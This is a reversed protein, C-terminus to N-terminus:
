HLLLPLHALLRQTLMDASSTADVKGDVALALTGGLRKVSVTAVAGERYYVLEGARLEEGARGRRAYAAYKYPGGSFLERDWRRGASWAGLVTVAVASALASRRYGAAVLLVISALAAIG